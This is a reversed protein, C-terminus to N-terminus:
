QFADLQSNNFKIFELFNENLLRCFVFTSTVSKKFFFFQKRYGHCNASRIEADVKEWPLLEKSFPILEKILPIFLFLNQLKQSILLLLPGKFLCFIFPLFNAFTSNGPCFNLALIYFSFHIFVTSFKPSFIFSFFVFFNLRAGLSIWFFFLDFNWISYFNFLWFNFVFLIFFSFKFVQFDQFFGPFHPFGDLHSVSWNVSLLWILRFLFFDFFVLDTLETNSTNFTM